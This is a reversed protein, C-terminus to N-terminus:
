GIRLQDLEAELEQTKMRVADKGKAVLKDMIPGFSEAAQSKMSDAKTKSVWVLSDCCGTGNCPIVSIITCKSSFSFFM